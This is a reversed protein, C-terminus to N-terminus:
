FSPYTIFESDPKLSYQIITFDQNDEITRKYMSAFKFIVQPSLWTDVDKCEKKFHTVYWCEIIDKFYFYTKAGGVVIYSQDTPLKNSNFGLRSNVEIFNRDGLVKINTKLETHTITGALCNKYTNTVHKFWKMDRPDRIIISGQYGIGFNQDVSLIASLPLVPSSTTM